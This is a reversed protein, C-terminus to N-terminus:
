ATKEPGLIYIKDGNSSIGTDDDYNALYNKLRVIDTNNVNGDGTADGWLIDPEDPDLEVVPLEVGTDAFTLLPLAACILTLALAFAVIKKM